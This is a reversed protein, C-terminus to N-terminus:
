SQESIPDGCTMQPLLIDSNPLPPHHFTNQRNGALNSRNRQSSLSPTASEKVLRPLLSALTSPLDITSVRVPRFVFSKRFFFRGARGLWRFREAWAERGQPPRPPEMGDRFPSDCGQGKERRFQRCASPSETAAHAEAETGMPASPHAPATPPPPQLAEPCDSRGRLSGAHNKSPPHTMM